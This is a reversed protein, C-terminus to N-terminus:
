KSLQGKKVFSPGNNKARMESVKRGAELHGKAAWEETFSKTGVAAFVDAWGGESLSIDLIAISDHPHARKPLEIALQSRAKSEAEARWTKSYQDVYCDFSVLSGGDLDVTQLTYRTSTTLCGSLLACIIALGYKM